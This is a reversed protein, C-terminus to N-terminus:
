SPIEEGSLVRVRAGGSLLNQGESIIIESGDLGETIEVFGNLSIGTGVKREEARGGPGAVFVSQGGYRRILASEPIVMRGAHLVTYITVRAFMGVAVRSAPGTFDLRIERTRTAPDVVPSMRSVAAPFVEGPFAEFVVLAKQGPGVKGLDKESILTKIQIRDIQGVRAIVTSAEVTAGTKGPVETITGDIPSRVPSHAYSLGPKSPDIEAIVQGKRVSDGLGAHLRVLKGGIDPFIDVSTETIVDGGTELYEQMDKIEPRVTRVSYVTEEEPAAAAKEGCGSLLTLAGSLIVAAAALFMLPAISPEKKYYTNKM